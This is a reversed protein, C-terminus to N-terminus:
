RPSKWRLFSTMWVGTSRYRGRSYHDGTWGQHWAQARYGGGGRSGGQSSAAAQRAAQHRCHQPGQQVGPCPQLLRGEALPLSGQGTGGAGREVRERGCHFAGPWLKLSNKLTPSGSGSGCTKPGGPDPVPDMPWLFPDPDKGKRM